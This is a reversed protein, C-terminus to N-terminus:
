LGYREVLEDDTHYKGARVDSVRQNVEQKLQLFLFENDLDTAEPLDVKKTVATYKLFARLGKALNYGNEKLVASASDLIEEDIKFAVTKKVVTTM